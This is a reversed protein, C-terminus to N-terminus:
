QLSMLRKFAEKAQAPVVSNGLGKIRDVRHPLGDDDRHITPQPIGRIGRFAGQCSYERFTKWSTEPEMWRELRKSSSNALSEKKGDDRFEAKNERGGIRVQEQGRRKGNTHALLFWRRRRHPAGLEAASVCTWRCDYGLDTFTRVVEKLGRTRIAPVNELFVWSPKIEEILRIIEFFLGSREGALGAGSGAASIDQCPFGGSIIDIQLAGKFPTADLTRVDDWIPAHTLQGESMRSLLVGQCYRDQECYAVTRVWPELARSIGGIGSFLDLGNLM